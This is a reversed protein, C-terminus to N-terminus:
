APSQRWRGGCDCAQGCGHALKIALRQMPDISGLDVLRRFSESCGETKWDLHKRYAVDDHNLHNLYAALEATNAFDSAVIVANDDPMFERVNTAGRYVPVVGVSLAHFVRETVYDQAVSNEGALYFKYRPIMDFLSQWGGRTWDGQVFGSPTCNNLCRGPCDVGIGRMLKEVWADREPVPNSAIFLCPRDQAGVFDPPSRMFGDYHDWNPYICPVDADLRYTMFLDFGIRAYPSALAPYNVESEMSMLIRPKDKPALPLDEISPGHFWLADAEQQADRDCTFRMHIDPGEPNPVTVPDLYDAGFFHGTWALVLLDTKVLDRPIRPAIAQVM